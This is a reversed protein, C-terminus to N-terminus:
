RKWRLFDPLEIPVTAEGGAETALHDMQSIATAFRASAEIENGAAMSQAGAELHREAQRSMETLTAIAAFMRSSPAQDALSRIRRLAAAAATGTMGEAGCASEDAPYRKATM